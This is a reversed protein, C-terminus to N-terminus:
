LGNTRGPFGAADLYRFPGVQQFRLLTRLGSAAPASRLTGSRFSARPIDPQGALGEALPRGRLGDSVIIANRRTSQAGASGPGCWVTLTARVEEPAARNKEFSDEEAKRHRDSPVSSM